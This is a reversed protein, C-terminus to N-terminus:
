SSFRWRSTQGLGYVPNNYHTGLIHNRVKEDYDVWENEDLSVETFQTGSEVGVCKWTGKTLWITLLSGKIIGRPGPPRVKPDFETFELGRCEIMVLPAFNGNSDAAYPTPAAKDFTASHERKCNSCKWVFNATINKGSM